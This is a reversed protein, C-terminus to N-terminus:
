RTTVFAAIGLVVLFGITSWGTWRAVKWRAASATWLASVGVGFAAVASAAYWGTHPDPEESAHILAGGLYIVAVVLAGLGYAAFGARVLWSM